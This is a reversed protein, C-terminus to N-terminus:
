SWRWVADTGGGPRDRHELRGGVATVVRAAIALGLGTGRAKGTVFPQYLRNRVEAPIGGGRDRVHITPGESAVEVEVTTGPPAAEIANRILNDLVQRIASHSAQRHVSEGKFELTVERTDALPILREVTRRVTECLELDARDDPQPRAFGLLGEVVRQAHLAEERIAALEPNAPQKSQALIVTLPNLLEHAVAASMEGLAALRETQIRKEEAAALRRSVTDFAAAVESLEDGLPSNPDGYQQAATRIADVPALVARTLERAVWVATLLSAVAMWVTVQGTRETRKRAREREVAQTRDLALSLQDVADTLQKTLKESVAHLEMSRARDLSGATAEPVVKERFYANLITQDQRMGEVIRREEASFPLELLRDMAADTAAEVGAGHALHGTGGEIYTHAQHVYQERVAFGLKAVEARWEALEQERESGQRVLQWSGVSLVASSLQLGLLLGVALLFRQRLSM